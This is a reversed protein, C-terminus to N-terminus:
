VVACAWCAYDRDRIVSAICGAVIHIEEDTFERLEHELVPRAGKYFTRIVSSPPQM